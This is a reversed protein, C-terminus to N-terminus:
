GGRTSEKQDWQQIIWDTAASVKPGFINVFDKTVMAQIDGHFKGNLRRAEDAPISALLVGSSGDEPPVDYTSV